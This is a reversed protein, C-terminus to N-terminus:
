FSGYSYLIVFFAQLTFVPGLVTGGYNEQCSFIHEANVLNLMM